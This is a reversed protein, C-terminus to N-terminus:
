NNNENSHSKVRAWDVPEGTGDSVKVVLPSKGDSTVIISELDDVNTAPLV